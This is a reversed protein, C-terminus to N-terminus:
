YCVFQEPSSWLIKPNVDATAILSNPDEEAAAEGDLNMAEDEDELAIDLPPAEDETEAMTNTTNQQLLSQLSLNSNVKM